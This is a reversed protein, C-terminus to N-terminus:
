SARPPPPSNTLVEVSHGDLDKFMAGFYTESIDPRKRPTFVDAASLGLATEHVQEVVHHSPADFAVHMGKSAVQEDAAVPYLFFSWHADTGFAAEKGTDRVLRLGLPAFVQEYFSVAQAYRTTGLSVHAIM